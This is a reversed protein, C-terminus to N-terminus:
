EGLTLDLEYLNNQRGPSLIPLEPQLNEFYIHQSDINM